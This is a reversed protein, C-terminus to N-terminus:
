SHFGALVSNLVSVAYCYLLAFTAALALIAVVAYLVLRKPRTKRAEHLQTTAVQAFENRM